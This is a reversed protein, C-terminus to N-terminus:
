CREANDIDEILKKIEDLARFFAMEHLLNHCDYDLADSLDILINRIKLEDKNYNM